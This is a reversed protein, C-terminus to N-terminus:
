FPQDLRGSPMAGILLAEGVLHDCDMKRLHVFLAEFTTGDKGQDSLWSMLVGFCMSTSDNYADCRGISDKNVRLCKALPGWREAISMSIHKLIYLHHPSTIDIMSSSLSEEGDPQGPQLRSRMLCVLDERRILTLCIAFQRWTPSRLDSESGALVICLSLFITCNM